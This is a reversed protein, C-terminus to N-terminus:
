SKTKKQTKKTTKRKSGKKSGKGKSYKNLSKCKKKQIKKRM